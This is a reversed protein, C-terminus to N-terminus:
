IMRYIKGPLSKILGSFELSLLLGSVKSITMNSKFCIDDISLESNEKLIDWIIKEEKTLDLFLSTQTNQTKKDIIDWNLMQILDKASEIIHARNTKILWNCGKSFSHNINGPLAFVDRNYGNALEATILSGGRIASEVVITADTMGAVIRNRQPFNEKDPITQSLYETLIGGNNMMKRAEKQHIKPYMRDLGHAVVGITPIQYHLCGRHAIIDIGYAMGSVVCVNYDVLEKLLEDCFLEGYITNNRTGVVSIMKQHNLDMNGKGYLLVPADLCNKLRNPYNNDLYYYTQIENKEIFTIEEEARLLVNQNAIAQATKTGINPIKLLHSKKEKFVAEASGCYAILNKANVAGVHEILTLGIKYILDNM